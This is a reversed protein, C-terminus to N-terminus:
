PSPNQFTVNPLSVHNNRHAESLFAEAKCEGDLTLIPWLEDSLERSDKRSVLTWVSDGAINDGYLNNKLHHELVQKRQDQKSGLLTYALIYRKYPANM